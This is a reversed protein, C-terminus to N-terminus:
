YYFVASLAHKPNEHVFMNRLILICTFDLMEVNLSDWHLNLESIPQVALSVSPLARNKANRGSSQKRLGDM